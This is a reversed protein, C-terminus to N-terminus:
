EKKDVESKLKAARGLVSAESRLLRQAITRWTLGSARLELLKEEDEPTWPRQADRRDRAVYTM